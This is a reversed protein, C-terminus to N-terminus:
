MFHQSTRSYSCLQRSRLFPEARHLKNTVSHVHHSMRSYPDSKTALLCLNHPPPTLLNSTHCLDNYIVSNDRIWNRWYPKIPRMKIWTEKCSWESFSAAEGVLICWFSITESNNLFNGSMKPVWFKIVTYSRLNECWHNHLTRDEPIYRWTNQQFDALTESFCTVEM